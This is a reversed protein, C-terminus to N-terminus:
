APRFPVGPQFAPSRSGAGPARQSYVVQGPPAQGVVRPSPHVASSVPRVGPAYQGPPNRLYAQAAALGASQPSVTRAGLTPSRASHSPSMAGGSIGSSTRSAAGTPSIVESPNSRVPRALPGGTSGATSRRPSKKVAPATSSAAKSPSNASSLEALQPRAGRASSRTSGLTGVSASLPSSTEKGQHSPSLRPTELFGYAELDVSKQQLIPPVPPVSVTEVERTPPPVPSQVVPPAAFTEEVAPPVSDVVPQMFAVPAPEALLDREQVLPAAPPQVFEAPAPEAPMVTEQVFPAAPPQAFLVPAPEMPVVTEQTLPAAPPQAFQTPPAEVPM